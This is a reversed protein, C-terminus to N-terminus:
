DNFFLDYGAHSDYQQLYKVTKEIEEQDFSGNRIKKGITNTSLGLAKSLNKYTIGYKAMFGKLERNM